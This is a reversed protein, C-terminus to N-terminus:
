TRSQEIDILWLLVNESTLLVIPEYTEDLYYLEGEANMYRGPLANKEADTLRNKVAFSRLLPKPLWYSTFQVSCRGGVATRDVVFYSVRRSNRRHIQSSVELLKSRLPELRKPVKSQWMLGRARLLLMIMWVGFLLVLGCFLAFGLPNRVSGIGCLMLMGYSLLVCGVRDGVDERESEKRLASRWLEDVYQVGFESHPNLAFPSVPAGAAAGGAALRTWDIPQSTARSDFMPEQFAALSNGPTRRSKDADDIQKTARAPLKSIEKQSLRPLPSVDEVVPPSDLRPVEACSYKLLCRITKACVAVDRNDHNELLRFNVSHEPALFDERTFLLGETEMDLAAPAAAIIKLSQYIVHASFNDLVPGFHERSRGPHQYNRHGIENSYRGSLAPVYMNDYDVLKLGSSTVLINGHQLDGHAIGAEYMALVMLAFQEAMENITSPQGINRRLYMDLPLGEVWEMKLIPVWESKVRIGKELFQFPVTFDLQDHAICESLARYRDNLDAISHLFCRVAWQRSCSVRYVSAFAGSIPRPLGFSDLGVQGTKLESDFFCVQPAQLAENYDQPTPWGM